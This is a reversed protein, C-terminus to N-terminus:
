VAKIILSEILEKARQYVEGITADPRVDCLTAVSGQREEMAVKEVIIERYCSCCTRTKVVIRYGDVYFVAKFAANEAPIEGVRTNLLIQTIDM